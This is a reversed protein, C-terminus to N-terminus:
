NKCVFDEELIKRARATITEMIKSIRMRKKILFDNYYPDYLTYAQEVNHNEASTHFIDDHEYKPMAFKKYSYYFLNSCNNNETFPNYNYTSTISEDIFPNYNESKNTTDCNYDTFPNYTNNNNNAEIM